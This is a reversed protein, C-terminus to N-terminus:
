GLEDKEEALAGEVVTAYGAIDHWSDVQGPLGTVIRSIKTALMDLAEAEVPSLLHRRGTSAMAEKIRQALAWQEKAPGYQAGRQSLTRCLEDPM